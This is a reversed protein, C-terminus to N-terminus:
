LRSHEKFPQKKFCRFLGAWRERLGLRILSGTAALNPTLLARTSQTSASTLTSKPWKECTFFMPSNQTVTPSLHRARTKVCNITLRLQSTDSGTIPIAMALGMLLVQCHSSEQGLQRRRSYHTCSPLSCSTLSTGM